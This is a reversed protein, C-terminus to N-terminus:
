QIKATTTDTAGKNDVWSIKLEDGKLEYIGLRKEGLQRLGTFEMDIAPPTTTPDIDMSARLGIDKEAKTWIMKDDEIM